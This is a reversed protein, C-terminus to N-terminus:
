GTSPGATELAPAELTRAARRQWWTVLLGGVLGGLGFATVAHVLAEGALPAVERMRGPGIAGGALAAFVGFVFGALVGGSGGRIAGESWRLTPIRRQARVAGAVGVLVPTLLLLGIWGSPTGAEPLAAFMPLMPLPGLVVVSPSVITAAGVTFGPGLLFSGAFAVANPLVTLSLMSLLTADGADVGLQSLVNAATSLDAVLAVVFTALCLWAWVLLIQRCTASTARLTDPLTSAWIAARGSGIAIAVGGMLVSLVMSWALVREASPNTAPTAALTVTVVAAVCYGVAFLVTAAPVTWDREGDDIRGADPGYASLEDGVRHGVRWISLVAIATIGLPVLTIAVGDIGVGSGHGMLWGLAGMRLGDRPTGHAGGDTNFWGILGVALCMALPIAAAAAGGLTAVVTLSRQDQGVAPAPSASRRDRSGAPKVASPLLSTM